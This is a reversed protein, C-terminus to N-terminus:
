QPALTYAFNLAHSPGCPCLATSNVLRRASLCAVTQESLFSACIQISVSYIPAELEWGPMPDKYGPSIKFETM